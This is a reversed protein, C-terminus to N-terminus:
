RAAKKKAKALKRREGRTLGKSAGTRYRHTAAVRATATGTEVKRGSGGAGGSAGATAGGVEMGVVGVSTATTDTSGMTATGAM